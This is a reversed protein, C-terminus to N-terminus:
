EMAALVARALAGLRQEILAPTECVYKVARSREEYLRLDWNLAETMERLKEPDNPAASQADRLKQTTQRVSEAMDKQKRGYRDLGAVVEAREGDLKAFVGAFLLTLREKRKQGSGRAFDAILKEATEIPTRRAAIRLVLDAIEADDRWAAGLGEISPGTWLGAIAINPVRVQKCPWDGQDRTPLALAAGCLSFWVTLAAAAGRKM